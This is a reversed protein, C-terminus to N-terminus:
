PIHRDQSDWEEQAARGLLNWQIGDEEMHVKIGTIRPAKQEIIWWPDTNDASIILWWFTGPLRCGEWGSRNYLCMLLYTTDSNLQSSTAAPLARDNKWTMQCRLQFLKATADKEEPSLCLPPEQTGTGKRNIGGLALAPSWHWVFPPKPPLASPCLLLLWYHGLISRGQMQAFGGKFRPLREGGPGWKGPLFWCSKIILLQRPPAPAGHLGKGKEAAGAPNGERQLELLM